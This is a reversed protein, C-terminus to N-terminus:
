TQESQLNVVARAAWLRAENIEHAAWRADGGRNAALAACLAEAAHAIYFLGLIRSRM